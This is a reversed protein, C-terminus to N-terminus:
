HVQQIPKAKVNRDGLGSHATASLTAQPPGTSRARPIAAVAAMDVRADNAHHRPRPEQQGIFRTRVGLVLTPDQRGVLHKPCRQEPEAPVGRM